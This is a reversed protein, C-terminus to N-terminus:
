NIMKSLIKELEKFDIEMNKNKYFLYYYNIDCISALSFFANNKFDDELRIELVNTNKNMFIMNTLGSGFIGALNETYQLYNIKEIVTLEEFDLITFKYKELIPKLKKFDVSSRHLNKKRFIFINKYKDNKLEKNIKRLKFIENRFKKISDKHYNGTPASKSTIVLNNVKYTINERLVLYNISFSDVFDKIFEIEFLRNPLLIPFDNNKEKVLILRQFSDLIWHFYVTSKHDTVWIGNEIYEIKNKSLMFNKVVRKIEQYFTKDGFFTYKRFLRLKFPKVIIENFIYLNKSIFYYNAPITKKFEHEFIKTDKHSYNKPLKRVDEYKKFINTKM